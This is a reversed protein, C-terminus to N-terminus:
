TCSTCLNGKFPCAGGFGFYMNTREGTTSNIWRSQKATNGIKPSILRLSKQRRELIIPSFPARFTDFVNSFVVAIDTELFM